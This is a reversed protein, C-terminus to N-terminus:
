SVLRSPKPSRIRKDAKSRRRAGAAVEPPPDENCTRLANASTLLSNLETDAMSNTAPPAAFGFGDDVFRRNVLVFSHRKGYLCSFFTGVPDKSVNWLYRFFCVKNDAFRQWAIFTCPCLTSGFLAVPNSEVAKVVDFTKFASDANDLMPQCEALRPHKALTSVDGNAVASRTNIEGALVTKPNAQTKALNVVRGLNADPLNGRMVYDKGDKVTALRPSFPADEIRTETETTPIPSPMPQTTSVPVSADLITKKRDEFPLLLCCRACPVFDSSPSGLNCNPPSSEDL